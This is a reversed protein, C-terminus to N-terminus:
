SQVGHGDALEPGFGDVPDGGALHDLPRRAHHFLQDLVREIGPGGVDFRHRRRPADGEDAHRVVAGAHTGAVQGQRERLIPFIGYVWDLATRREARARGPYSGLELNELVTMTGFLRRGEPVLALGTVTVPTIGLNTLTALEDPGMCRVPREGFDIVAPSAQLFYGADSGTDRPGMDLEGGDLDTADAVGADLGGDAEGGDGGADFPAADPWGQSGDGVRVEVNDYGLRELREAALQALEPQREIAFVRAAIRSMVAAAYGSGAGIELVRDAGDIGAAEIMLAVVYPQSITQGAEIPLPGDDYARDRLYEDVFEERPVTRMAQLVREDRMGRERLQEDVMRERWEAFRPTPESVGQEQNQTLM